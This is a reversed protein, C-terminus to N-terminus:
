LPMVAGDVLIFPHEIAPQYKGMATLQEVSQIIGAAYGTTNSNSTPVVLAQGPQANMALDVQAPGVALSVCLCM